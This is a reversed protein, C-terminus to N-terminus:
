KRSIWSLFPSKLYKHGWFHHPPTSIHGWYEGRGNRRRQQQCLATLSCLVCTEFNDCVAKWEKKLMQDYGQTTHKTKCPQSARWTCTIYANSYYKKLLQQIEKSPTAIRYFSNKRNQPSERYRASLIKGDAFKGRSLKLRSVQAAMNGIVKHNCCFSSLKFSENISLLTTVILIRAICHWPSLQIM